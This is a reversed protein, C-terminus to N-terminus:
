VNAAVQTVNRALRAAKDAARDARIMRRESELENATIDCIPCYFEGHGFRRIMLDGCRCKPGVEIVFTDMDGSQQGIGSEALVKQLEKKIEAKTM